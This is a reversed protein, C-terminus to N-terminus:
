LFLFKANLSDLQQLILRLESRKQEEISLKFTASETDPKREEIASELCSSARDIDPSVINQPNIADTFSNHRPASSTSVSATSHSDRTPMEHMFGDRHLSFFIEQEHPELPLIAHLSNQCSSKM